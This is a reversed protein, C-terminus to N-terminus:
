QIYIVATKRFAAIIRMVATYMLGAFFIVMLLTLSEYVSGCIIALAMITINIIGNVLNFKWIPASNAKSQRARLVDM